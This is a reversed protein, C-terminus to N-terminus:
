RSLMSLSLTPGTTSSDAVRNLWFFFAAAACPSALFVVRQHRSASLRALRFNSSLRFLATKCFYRFIHALLLPNSEHARSSVNETGKAFSRQESQVVGVRWGVRRLRGEWRAM